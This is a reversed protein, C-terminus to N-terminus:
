GSEGVIGITEGAKMSFNIHSIVEQPGHATNLTVCLDQVQLLAM